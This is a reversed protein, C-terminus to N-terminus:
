LLNKHRIGRGSKNQSRRWGNGIKVGKVKNQFIKKNVPYAVFGEKYEIEKQRKIELRRNSEIEREELGM